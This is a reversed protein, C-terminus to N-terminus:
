SSKGCNKCKKTFFGVMEGGCYGCLGQSVWLRSQEEQEKRRREEQGEQKWKLRMEESVPAINQWDSTNCQGCDNKGVAVVTGDVHLGVAYGDGTSVAVIDRWSYTNCEGYTNGGVAVVTGDAKLGATHFDGTSIAVIDRWDGTNCSIMNGVAVVTGDAKLGVTFFLETSVSVINRWDGTNFQGWKNNGVAVVTGDAKIGVTHSSGTSVAVINRWDGTNCEGDDNKGVAVVTGDAKLGVTHMCDASIAVIDRWKGINCQGYDVRGVAVVTGDAKLGVIHHSGTSIAVINCWDSTDIGNERVTVVTGDTRIGVTLYNNSSICRQYKSNRIRIIKLKQLKKEFCEQEQRIKERIREEKEEIIAKKNEKLLDFFYNATDNVESISMENKIYVIIQDIKDKHSISLNNSGLFTIETKLETLVPIVNEIQKLAVADIIPKSIIDQGYKDIAKFFQFNAYHRSYFEKLKTLNAIRKEEEIIAQKNERLLDFFHNATDNVESISMENKIYVIIQDIKDKHSVSLNNSDLFTIETKLKTLVPLANELQKLAVADIVPKSFIDQGCKDIAKFFQFIVHHLTYFEELKARNAIENLADIYKEFDSSTQM